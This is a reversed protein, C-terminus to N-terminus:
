NDNEEISDPLEENQVAAEELDVLNNINEVSQLDLSDLYRELLVAHQARRQDHDLFDNVCNVLIRFGGDTSAEFSDYRIRGGFLAVAVAMILAANKATSVFSFKGPSNVNISFQINEVDIGLNYEESIQRVKDLLEYIIGTLKYASIEEANVTLVYHFKDEVVFYSNYNREIYEAYKTIDCVAQHAGLAKYLCPDLRSKRIEKIWEVHRSLTFHTLDPDYMLQEDEIRGIRLHNAGTDPIIVIDGQKMEFCLSYIQKALRSLSTTDIEDVRNSINIVGNRHLQLIQERILRVRTGVEINDNIIQYLFATPCDLLNLAVFNNESFTSYNNGNDTRVMWYRKSNEHEIKDDILQLAESINNEM